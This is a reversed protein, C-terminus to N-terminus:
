LSAPESEWSGLVRFVRFSRVVRVRFPCPPVPHLPSLSDELDQTTVPRKVGSVVGSDWGRGRESTVSFSSSKFNDLIFPRKGRFVRQVSMREKDEKGRM